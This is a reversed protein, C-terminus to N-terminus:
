LWNQHRYWQYTEKLGIELPTAAVFGLQQKAKSTDVVWFRQKMEMAKDRNLIAPHRVVKAFGESLWAAFDLALVPLRITVAHKGMANAIANELELWSIPAENALFYIQNQAEPREAALQIGQVLDAVYIISLFRDAFGVQPKIGFKIYKFLMVLDDDRPGYVAPPRVITTPFYNQFQAVEQEAMLKSKGYFSIPRPEDQEKVPDGSRSPGAAAQTSIYVFRKLNPCSMRCAELLNRTGIQNVQFFESETTARLAGSLHFIYDIEKVFPALSTVDSLDGIALEVPLGQIWRLNSTKRVLCRVEYGEQLLREVLHSGIFGNAGSILARM